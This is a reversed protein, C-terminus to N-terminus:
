RVRQRWATAVRTTSQFEHFNGEEEAAIAGVPAAASDSCMGLGLALAALLGFLGLVLAAKHPRSASRPSGPTRSDTTLTFPEEDSEEPVSIGRGPPVTGMEEALQEESIVLEGSTEDHAYSDFQECWVVASSPETAGDPENDPPAEPPEEGRAQAADRAAAQLAEAFDEVAQPRRSPKKELAKLVLRELLESIRAEPV